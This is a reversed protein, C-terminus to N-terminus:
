PATVGMWIAGSRGIAPRSADRYFRDYLAASRLSETADQSSGAADDNSSAARQERQVPACAASAEAVQAVAPLSASHEELTRRVLDAEAPKFAAQGEYIQRLDAAEMQRRMLGSQAHGLGPLLLHGIEHAMVLGLLHAERMGVAAANTRIREHIVYAIRGMGHTPVAAYGIVDKKMRARDAMKSTIVNITLQAVPRRGADQTCSPLSTLRGNRMIGTWEIRVGIRGYVRTVIAKAESLSSESVRSYDYIRIAIGLDINSTGQPDASAAGCLACSAVLCGVIIRM